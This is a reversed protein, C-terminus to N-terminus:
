RLPKYLKHRLPDKLFWQQELWIDEDKDNHDEQAKKEGFNCNSNLCGEGLESQHDDEEIHIRKGLNEKQDQNVKSSRFELQM